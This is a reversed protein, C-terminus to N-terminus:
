GRKNDTLRLRRGTPCRDGTSIGTASEPTLGNAYHGCIPMNQQWDLRALRSDTALWGRASGARISPAATM